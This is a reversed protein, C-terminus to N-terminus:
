FHTKSTARAIDSLENKNSRIIVIQELNAIDENSLEPFSFVRYKYGMDYGVFERFGLVGLEAVKKNADEGGIIIEENKRLNQKIEEPANKYLEVLLAKKILDNQGM